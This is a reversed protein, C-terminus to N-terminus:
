SSVSSATSALNLSRPAGFVWTRFLPYTLSLFVLSRALLWAATASLGVLSTLAAVLLSNSAGSSGSVAAYRLLAVALGGTAGFAWCRNISFNLLGGVVCGVFTAIGAHVHLGVLISFMGYDCATALLSSLAARGVAGRVFLVQFANM